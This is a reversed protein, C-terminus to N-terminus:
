KQGADVTGVATSGPARVEGVGPRGHLFQGALQERGVVGLGARRHGEDVEVGVGLM